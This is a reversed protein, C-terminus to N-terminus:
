FKLAATAYLYNYRYSSRTQDIGYLLKWSFSRHNSELSIASTWGGARDFETYQQGADAHAALTVGFLRQRMSVGSLWRGYHEPSYYTGTYPQSDQHHKTRLYVSIGYDDSLTYYTRTVLLDRENGDTIDSRTYGGYTGWNAANFDVYATVSEAM